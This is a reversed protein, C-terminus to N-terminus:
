FITFKYCLLNNLFCKWKCAINYNYYIPPWIGAWDIAILILYYQRRAGIATTDNKKKKVIRWTSYFIVFLKNIKFILKIYRWWIRRRRGKANCNTATWRLVDDIIKNKNIKMYYWLTIRLHFYLGNWYM